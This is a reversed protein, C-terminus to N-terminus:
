SPEAEPQREEAAGRFAPGPSAGASFDTGLLESIALSLIFDAKL